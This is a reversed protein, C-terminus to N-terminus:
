IKTNWFAGLFASYTYNIYKQDAYQRSILYEGFIRAVQNHAFLRAFYLNQILNYDNM